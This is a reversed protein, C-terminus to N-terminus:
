KLEDRLHKQPDNLILMLDSLRSWVDHLIEDDDDAFVCMEGSVQRVAAFM